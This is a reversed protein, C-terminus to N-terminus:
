KKNRWYDLTNELTEDIPYVPKWGTMRCLKNNNGVFMPVDSPRMRAQDRIKQIPHTSFAILKDLLDEVKYGKGSCVNFTEGAPLEAGAVAEYARVVDRIDLYDRTAGLDGVSITGGKKKAATKEIMSIQSAMDPVFFGPKQGPGTHAFVRLIIINLKSSQTYQYSVRDAAAKSSAYSNVPFLPLDETINEPQTTKGYVESSSVYIIKPDYGTEHRVRLVSEYLNVTGWINTNFVHVPNKFWDTTKAALHLIIDPQHDRLIAYVAEGETMDCPLFKVTASSPLPQRTIGIVDYTHKLLDVSHQGAFGGAGTILMRSM